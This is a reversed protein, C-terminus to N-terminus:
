AALAASAGPWVPGSLLLMLLVVIVILLLFRLRM